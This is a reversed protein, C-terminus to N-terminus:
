LAALVQLAHHRLRGLNRNVAHARPLFALVPPRRLALRDLAM